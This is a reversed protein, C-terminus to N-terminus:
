MRRIFDILMDNYNESYPAGPDQRQMEVYDRKIYKLLKMKKNESLRRLLDRYTDINLEYVSFLFSILINDSQIEPNFNPETIITYKFYDQLILYEEDEDTLVYDKPLGTKTIYDFLQFDRGRTYMHINHLNLYVSVWNPGLFHRPGIDEIYIRNHLEIQKNFKLNKIKKYFIPFWDNIKYRYILNWLKYKNNSTISLKSKINEITDESTKLIKLLENILDQIDVMDMQELNQLTYEDDFVDRIKPVGIMILNRKIKSENDLYVFKVWNNSEIFTIINFTDTIQYLISLILESPLLHLYSYKLFELDM